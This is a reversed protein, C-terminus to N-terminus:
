ENRRQIIETLGELCMAVERGKETIEYWEKRGDERTLHHSILDFMLLERLRKNLTSVSISVHFDRYQAPGHEDLFILIDKTGKLGLVRFFGEEVSGM